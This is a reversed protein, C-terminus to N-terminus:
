KPRKEPNAKAPFLTYIVIENQFIEFIIQFPFSKVLAQRYNKTQVQFSLPRTMIENLLMDTERYFRLALDESIQSYYEFAESLNEWYEEKINIHYVM